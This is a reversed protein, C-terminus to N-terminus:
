LFDIGCFFRARSCYFRRNEIRFENSQALGSSKRGVLFTTESGVEGQAQGTQGEDMAERHGPLFLWPYTKMHNEYPNLHILEYTPEFSTYQYEEHNKRKGYTKEEVEPNTFRQM